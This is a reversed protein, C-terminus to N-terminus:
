VGIVVNQSVLEEDSLQADPSAPAESWEEVEVTDTARSSPRTTEWAVEEDEVTQQVFFNVFQWYLSLAEDELLVYSM